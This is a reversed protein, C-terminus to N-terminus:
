LKVEATLRMMMHPRKSRQKVEARLALLNNVRRKGLRELRGAEILDADSLKRAARRMTRWDDSSAMFKCLEKSPTKM